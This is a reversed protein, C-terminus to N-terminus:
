GLDDITTPEITVSEREARTLTKGSLPHLLMRDVCRKAQVVADGLRTVTGAYVIDKGDILPLYSAPANIGFVDQEPPMAPIFEVTILFERYLESHVTETTKASKDVETM